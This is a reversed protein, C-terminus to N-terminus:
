TKLRLLADKEALRGPGTFFPVASELTLQSKEEESFVGGPHFLFEIDRGKKAALACADERLASVNDFSRRDSLMVGLFVEAEKLPRFDPHRRRDIFALTNLAAVKLLNIKKFNKLEKRHKWYLSAKEEPVRLSCDGLGEERLVELLVDFVAPIMHFHNHSDVRFKQRDLYPLCARIQARYEEKIQLFMRDKRGKLFSSFLLKGFGTRFNGSEDTILSANRGTLPKGDSINLHVTLRVPREPIEASHLMDMCEPLYPSNPMISVGNLVGETYCQLIERSQKPFFGFDDAHYEIRM